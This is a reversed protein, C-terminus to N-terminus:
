FLNSYDYLFLKNIKLKKEKLKEKNKSKREIKKRECKREFKEFGFMTKYNDQFVRPSCLILCGELTEM